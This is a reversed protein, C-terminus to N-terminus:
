ASARKARIADVLEPKTMGDDFTASVRAAETLLQAKTMKGLAEDDAPVVAVPAPVQGEGEGTGELQSPTGGGLSPNVTEIQGTGTFARAVDFGVPQASRATVSTIIGTPEDLSLLVLGGLDAAANDDFVLYTLDDLDRLADLHHRRIVAPDGSALPDTARDYPQVDTVAFEGITLLYMGPAQPMVAVRLGPGIGTVEALETLLETERTRRDDESAPSRTEAQVRIAAGLRVLAEGDDWPLPVQTGVPIPDGGGQRLPTLLEYMQM